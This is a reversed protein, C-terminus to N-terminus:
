FCIRSHKGTLETQFVKFILSGKFIVSFLLNQIPGKDFKLTLRLVNQTKIEYESFISNAVPVCFLLKDCFCVRDLGAGLPFPDSFQAVEVGLGAPRALVRWAHTGDDQLQLLAWNRDLMLAVVEGRWEM